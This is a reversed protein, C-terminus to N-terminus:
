EKTKKKAKREAKLEAETRIRIHSDLLERLANRQKMTFQDKPVVIPTDNVELCFYDKEEWWNTANDWPFLGDEGDYTSTIGEEGFDYYFHAGKSKKLQVLNNKIPDSNAYFLVTAAMVLLLFGVMPRGEESFGLYAWYGLYAASMALLVVSLLNMWLRRHPYKAQERAVNMEALKQMVAENIVTESHITM